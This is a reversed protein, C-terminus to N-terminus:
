LCLNQKVFCKVIVINQKFSKSLIKMEFTEKWEQFKPNSSWPVIIWAPIIHWFDGRTIHTVWSAPPKKNFFSFYKSTINFIKSNERTHSFTSDQNINYLLIFNTGAEKRAKLVKLSFFLKKYLTVTKVMIIDTILRKKNRALRVRSWLWALNM